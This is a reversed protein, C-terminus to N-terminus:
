PEPPKVRLGLKELLPEDVPHKSDVSVACSIRQLQRCSHLIYNGHLNAPGFALPIVRAIRGTGQLALLQSLHTTPTM